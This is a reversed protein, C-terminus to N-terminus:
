TGCRCFMYNAYGPFHKTQMVYSASRKSVKCESKTFKRIQFNGLCWRPLGACCSITYDTSDQKHIDTRQSTKWLYLIRKFEKNHKKVANFGQLYYIWVINQNLHGVQVTLYEIINFKNHQAKSCRLTLIYSITERSFRFKSM